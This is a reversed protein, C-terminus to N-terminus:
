PHDKIADSTEQDQAPCKEDSDEMSDDVAIISMTSDDGTKNEKEPKVAIHYLNLEEESLEVPAQSMHDKGHLGKPFAIVDRITETDCIIAMLRDIGLAIGGHPPCGSELAMILHKLHKHDIDLITQLVFKQLDGDHIRISGGGVEKGNIVLDYALSRISELNKQEKLAAVDEPHPATFPHHTSELKGDDNRTVLPFDTVWLFELGGKGDKKLLERTILSDIIVNRIRGMLEQTRNQQGIALFLLDGQELSLSEALAKTVVTSLANSINSEIWAEISTEKLKSVFLRTEKLDKIMKAVTNKLSTPFGNNPSKLVIAYAVFDHYTSQLTENIKVQETVDTFPFDFRLDPKDSGFKSMVDAYTMRRFPTELPGNEREPWSSKLVEEILEMVKDRDTFSLEIDLQTFEPQRDSRTAEDRYCRAIQFYRDIAGAMLLQKFQQPSQVLSYFHGRKRSPVVFEQAGGPTARFLTPTEVEVFGCRNVLFERMKMLVTSRTRLNRQMDAFRLDIYRHELRLTEKARNFEHVEMPLNKKSENLLEFDELLVEIEGTSMAPNSLHPPRATVVGVVKVISEYSMTDLPIDKAKEPPIVVQTTGYGDRITIFKKMRQFSLWGTLVVNEGVNLMSLEGCNHTRCTFLNTNPPLSKPVDKVNEETMEQDSDGNKDNKFLDDPDEEKEETKDFEPLIYPEEPSLLKFNEVIVEVDGTDTKTNRSNPPRATLTGEVFIIDSEKFNSMKEIYERNSAAVTVQCYGTGDRMRFFRGHRQSNELWGVLRIQQGVNDMRLEGCTVKRKDFYERITGKAKALEPATIGLFSRSSTSMSRKQDVDALPRGSYPTRVSLIEQVHVEVDGTATSRNRSTEPRLKCRGVIRLQADVPMKQFRISIDTDESNAILQTYGSGDKLLLFRGFRQKVVRGFLEVLMGHHHNRLGGCSVQMPREMPHHDMPVIPLQMLPPPYSGYDDYRNPRFMKNPPQNMWMNRYAM